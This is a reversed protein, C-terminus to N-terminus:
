SIKRYRSGDFRFITVDSGAPKSGPQPNKYHRTLVRLDYYPGNGPAVAITSRDLTKAPWSTGGGVPINAVANLGDGVIRFLVLSTRFTGGTVSWTNRVGILTESSSLRYPALDLSASGDGKV